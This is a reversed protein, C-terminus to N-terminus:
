GSRSLEGWRVVALRMALLFFSRRGEWSYGNDTFMFISVPTVAGRSGRPSRDHCLTFLSAIALFPLRFGFLGFRRWLCRRKRLRQAHGRHLGSRALLGPLRLLKLRCRCGRDWTETPKITSFPGSPECILRAYREGNLLSQDGAGQPSSAASTRIKGSGSPSHVRRLHV